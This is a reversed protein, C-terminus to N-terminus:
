SSRSRIRGIPRLRSARATKFGSSSPRARPKSSNRRAANERKSILDAHEKSLAEYGRTLLKLEQDRVPTNHIRGSLQDIQAQVADRDAELNAIEKELRDVASRRAPVVAVTPDSSTGSRPAGLEPHQKKFEAIEYTKRRVAPNEDTYNVRLQALEAELLELRHAVPDVGESVTPLSPAISDLKSKQRAEVLKDQRDQIDRNLSAVRQQNSQLLQLNANLQEPLEWLHGRKYDAIRAETDDLELKKKELWGEITKLTGSAQDTRMESNQDVFLEVLRNAISAAREPRENVVAVTFYSLNPGASLDVMSKLGDCAREIEPETAGDPVLGTERVVKELFSRSLIQVSMSSMRDEVRTTVTSPAFEVPMRQPTVLITTSARYSKPLYDLVFYAAIASLVTPILIFWKRRYAIDLYSKFQGTATM